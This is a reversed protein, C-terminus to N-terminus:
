RVEARARALLSDCRLARSWSDMYEHDLTAGGIRLISVIDRWQKESTEGGEHFWLLKRIVSDEPSKIFLTQGESGVTTARRRVFESEDFPSTGFGFFDIKTLLPLYFANATASRLIADRLMDRDVEFDAGLGDAFADVRSPHLSIVIDIDNTSRPDGQLSSAVSGGVFYAGGVSELAQAVLLAIQLPDDAVATM